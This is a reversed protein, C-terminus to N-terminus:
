AEKSAPSGLRRRLIAVIEDNNRRTPEAQPLFASGHFTGPYSHLEVQVGDRMMAMAYLIGEDRLPDYEMTTVYAPPLGALDDCRSPAALYPVDDGGHLDGLYHRWEREAPAANERLADVRAADVSQPGSTDCASLASLAMLLLFSSYNTM